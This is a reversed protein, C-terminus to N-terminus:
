DCKSYGCSPCFVCGGEYRMKEGCEPCRTYSEEMQGECEPCLEKEM